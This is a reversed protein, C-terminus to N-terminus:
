TNIVLIIRISYLSTHDSFRSTINVIHMVIPTQPRIKSVGGGGGGGGNLKILFFFRMGKPKNRM